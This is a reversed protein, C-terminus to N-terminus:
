HKRHWAEDYERQRIEADTLGLVYTRKGNYYISTSSLNDYNTAAKDTLVASWSMTGNCTSFDNDKIADSVTTEFRSVAKPNLEGAIRRSVKIKDTDKLYIKKM